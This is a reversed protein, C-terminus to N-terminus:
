NWCSVKGYEDLFCVGSHHDTIKLLIAGRVDATEALHRGQLSARAIVCLSSLTVALVSM